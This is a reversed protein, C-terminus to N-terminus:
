ARKVLVNEEPVHIQHIGLPLCDDMWGRIAEGVGKGGGRCPCGKGPGVMVM